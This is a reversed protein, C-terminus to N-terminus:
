VHARGIKCAQHQTKQIHQILQYLIYSKGVRRQGVLIKIIQQDIYPMIANLYRKRPIIQSPINM